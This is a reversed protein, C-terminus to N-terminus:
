IAKQLLETIDMVEISEQLHKKRIGDEFMQLCFPCATVVIDAGTEIAEETRMVNVRKGTNEELWMHGGGGGCCFSERKNGKMEVFQLEPISSLIARPAKYIGHYRGLYCPDHYTVKKKVGISPSLKGGTILAAVFETHHVVEFEGGFQPYENRLTNYCHPCITVIKKVHYRKLTEINRQVQAQFILEQGMRRAPDGCCSEEAGLIGFSISAQIMLQAFALTMKMSREDLAGTCGVWYLIEGHEAKSLKKIKQGESWDTRLHLAGTWPDGRMMTTRLAREATEPIKNRVMVLNRRLEMIKDIHENCVPCQEQCAYCTLCDWIKEESITDGILQLTPKGKSMGKEILHIRLNKILEQPSLAKGSLFAPCSVQCRGCEACAYLDLLQKWNFEEIKEVGLRDATEINIPILAGKPRVSRFFVNFLATLIHLHKSYPIYVMFGLFILLHVWWIIIYSTTLASQSLGDFAHAFAVRIVSGSTERLLNVNLAEGVLHTVMLLFVLILIMAPELNTELREPKRIYRRILAWVVAVISLLALFDLVSLFIVSFPNALNFLRSDHWAGWTFLYGYHIFFLIFTWFMIFHGIGARDKRSVSRLTCWEGLVWIFFLITRKGLHDFRDEKGGLRLFGYLRYARYVFFGLVVIFLGYLIVLGPIDGYRAFAPNM